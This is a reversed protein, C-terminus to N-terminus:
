KKGKLSKRSTLTHIMSIRTKAMIPHIEDQADYYNEVKSFRDDRDQEISGFSKEEVIEAKSLYDNKCHETAELFENGVILNRERTEKRM